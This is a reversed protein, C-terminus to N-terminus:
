FKWVQPETCYIISELTEAIMFDMLQESTVYIKYDGQAGGLCVM